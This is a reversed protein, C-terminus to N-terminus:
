LGCSSVTSKDVTGVGYVHKLRKHISTVSDKEAMLFEIAALQKCGVDGIVGNQRGRRM